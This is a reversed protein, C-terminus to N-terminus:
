RAEVMQGDFNVAIEKSNEPIATTTTKGGPWPILM